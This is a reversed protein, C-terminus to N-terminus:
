FDIVIIVITLRQRGHPRDRMIGGGHPGALRAALRMSGRSRCDRPKHEAYAGGRDGIKMEFATAIRPAQLGSRQSVIYAQSNVPNYQPQKCAGM